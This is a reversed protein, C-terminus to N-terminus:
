CQIAINKRRQERQRCGGAGELLRRKGLRCHNTPKLVREYFFFFLGATTQQALPLLIETAKQFDEESRGTNVWDLLDASVAANSTLLMRPKRNERYLGGSNAAFQVYQREVWQEYFQHGAFIKGRAHHPVCMDQVLHAAAGLYFMAQEPNGAYMKKSAQNWYLDFVELASPFHWLGKATLRFYHSSNKWDQDAWYVGRNLEGRYQTFFTAAGSFGDGRLIGIAQNNCFRHTMRPPDVISQLPSTASLVFRTIKQMSKDVLLQMEM